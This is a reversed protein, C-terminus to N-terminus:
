RTTVRYGAYDLGAGAASDGPNTNGTMGRGARVGFQVVFTVYIDHTPAAGLADIWMFAAISLGTLPDTEIASLIPTPIGIQQALALSDIMPRVALHIARKEFAFASLGEARTITHVGTGADTINVAAGGLTASLKFASVGDSSIVYYDTAAALGAPLATDSSVQVRDGNLLAPSGAALVATCVDTAAVATFTGVTYDGTPMNPFERVEKYGKINVLSAYPDDTTRQSYFQNNMVRPDNQLKGIFDTTGLVYRPTLAGLLNQKQRLTELTDLDTSNTAKVLSQSFNGTSAAMSVGTRVVDRGLAQGSEDVLQMFAPNLLLTQVDASPLKLQVSRSRDIKVKIDSVLDKVNQANATLSTGPTYDVVTPVSAIQSIVEQGYKVPQAFTSGAKGFDTSFFDLEPVKTKFAAMVKGTLIPLILTATGLVPRPCLKSAALALGFCVSLIPHIVAIAVLLILAVLNLPSKLYKM